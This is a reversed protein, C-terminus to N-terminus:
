VLHQNRAFHTAERRSNIKLKSYINSVHNKVTNVSVFLHEAIEQNTAGNAIERLVELERYTLSTVQSNNGHDDKSTKRSFESLVRATMERTLAAEGRLVGRLADVLKAVPLSKLLYGIAGARIAAYLTEDGEMVTLFVILTDPLKALIAETADLGDGDPLKFDMLVIEPKLKYAAKIAEAVSGAQGIVKFDPQASFLGILGERFM